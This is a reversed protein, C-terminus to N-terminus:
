EGIKDELIHLNSKLVERLKNSTIDRQVSERATYLQQLHKRKETIERRAETVVDDLEQLLSHERVVLMSHLEQINGSVIEKQLQVHNTLDTLKRELEEICLQEEVITIPTAM